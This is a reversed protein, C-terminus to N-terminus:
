RSHDELRIRADVLGPQRRELTVEGVGLQHEASLEALWTVFTGFPVEELWVRVAGNGDPQVRQVSGGLDSANAAADITGVLSARSPGSAQPDVSMAQLKAAAEQMWELEGETEALRASLTARRENLPEWIGAYALVVLGILGGAALVRQERRALRRWSAKM